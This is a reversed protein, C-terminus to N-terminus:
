TPSASQHPLGPRHAQRRVLPRDARLDFQDLTVLTATPGGLPSRSPPCSGQLLPQGPTPHASPNWLTPGLPAATRASFVTRSTSGKGRVGSIKAKKAARLAEPTNPAIQDLDLNVLEERRLGTGLLTHVIAPDRLPRAHGHLEGGASHRRGKHQHFRPLRDLVNKLTRVQGPTLARPELPPLPLDGVKACPNGHPLAAPDHTCVWTTFGSLSALHTNVTAPALGLGGADWDTSLRTRWAVVERHVVASLRDHGHAAHFHDRFRSLHLAIKDAVEASRVGRVAADLYRGAWDEISDPVTLGGIPLPM